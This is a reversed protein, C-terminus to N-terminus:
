AIASIQEDSLNGPVLTIPIPFSGALRGALATVLPGPGEKETSAGLVLIAIDEDEQILSRIEDARKGERIVTEPDVAAMARARDVFHAVTQEAEDMAEARMVDEVGLWHQFDGPMIVYLMILAGGTHEARKAAFAVARECEPTDDIIVLFKRKHGAELSRRTIGM